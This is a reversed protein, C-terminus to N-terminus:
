GLHELSAVPRILVLKLKAQRGLAVGRHGLGRSRKCGLAMRVNAETLDGVVLGARIDVFDAFLVGPSRNVANGVALINRFDGHRHRGVLLAHEASGHLHGRALGLELIGVSRIRNLGANGVLNVYGLGQGPAGKRGALETKLQALNLALVRLKDLGNHVSGVTLHRELGDLVGLDALVGVRQALDLAIGAADGVVIRDVSDHRGDAIVTLALQHSSMLQLAGLVNLLNPKLVGVSHLGLFRANGVLDGRLLDQGAAVELGSLEEKLEDLTVIDDGPAGIRGVALDRHVLDGVGLGALVGVRQALDVASGLAIADGVVARGVGDHGRNRVIAVAREIDMM